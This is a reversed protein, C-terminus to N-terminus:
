IGWESLWDVVSERMGEWADRTGYIEQSEADLFPVVQARYDDFGLEIAREVAVPLLKRLSAPLPRPDARTARVLHDLDWLDRAQTVHRGALAGIKQRVAAPATYHNASPAIVGHPRAISALVPELVHEDDAGRRSFEIKTHLPLALGDVRLEVKWRQTTDTQKPKTVRAVAIRQARVMANLAPGAFLKDVVGQLTSPPVGVTDVDLDESYRTSGFWARLNVGGKVIYRPRALKAELARLFALHFGEVYHVPTM